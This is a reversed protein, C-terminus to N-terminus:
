REGREVAAAMTARCAPIGGRGGVLLLGGCGRGGEAERGSIPTFRRVAIM